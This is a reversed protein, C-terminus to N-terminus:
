RVKGCSVIVASETSFTSNRKRKKENREKADKHTCLILTHLDTYVVVLYLTLLIIIGHNFSTVAWDNPFFCSRLQNSVIVSYVV